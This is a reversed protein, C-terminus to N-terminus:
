FDPHYGDHGVSSDDGLDPRILDHDRRLRAEGLVAEIESKSALGRVAGKGWKSYAAVAAFVLGLIVASELLIIMAVVLWAPAAAPPAPVLGATADGAWIAPLSTLGDRVNGPWFWHGTVMLNAISRGLQALLPPVVLVLAAGATPIEWTWPYPDALRESQM